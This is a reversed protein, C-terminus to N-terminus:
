YFVHEVGFWQAKDDWRFRFAGTRKDANNAGTILLGGIPTGGVIGINVPQSFTMALASSAMMMAGLTLAAIKSFLTRIKM